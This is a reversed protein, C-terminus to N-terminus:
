RWLEKRTWRSFKPGHARLALESVSFWGADFERFMAIREEVM